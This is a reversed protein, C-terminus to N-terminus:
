DYIDPFHLDSVSKYGEIAHRHFLKNLELLKRSLQYETGANRLSFSCAIRNIKFKVTCM